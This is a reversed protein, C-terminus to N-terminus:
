FFASIKEKQLSIQGSAIEDAQGDLKANKKKEQTFIRWHNYQIQSVSISPIQIFIAVKLIMLYHKSYLTIYQKCINNAYILLVKWQYFEDAGGYIKM